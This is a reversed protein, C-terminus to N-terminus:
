RLLTGFNRVGAERAADAMMAKLRNFLYANERQDYLWKYPEGAESMYDEKTWHGIVMEPRESGNLVIVSPNAESVTSKSQM